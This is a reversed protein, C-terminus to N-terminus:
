DNNFNLKITDLLANGRKQDYSLDQDKEQEPKIGAAFDIKQKKLISDQFLRELADSNLRKGIKSHNLIASVADPANVLTKTNKKRKMMNSNKVNKKKEKLKQEEIWDRHIWHWVISKVAIEEKSLICNNIEDDDM